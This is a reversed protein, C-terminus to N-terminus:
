WRYAVKGYVYAGNVGWPTSEYYPFVGNNDQSPIARDPYTNLANDAGLTFTWKALNYSASLDVIWKADLYQDFEDTLGSNFAKYGGYRTATGSFVWQGVQYLETWILKTTHTHWGIVNFRGGQQFLDLQDLLPPNPLIKSLRNKNYNASLTTQLTGANGLDSLYSAVVDLGQTVGSGANIFYQLSVVSFDTIGNSALYARVAPSSTPMRQSLQIQNNLVIQYADVSVNLAQNPSWVAGFTYNRSKEPQLPESGLARALAAGVPVIGTAYLGPPLHSSNGASFYGTATTSYREQALAPAHFATGVTGRLAFADTFDFRGSLAGSTTGGFDSYNEHRGALSVGLRDTLNTELDLYEATNHRSISGANQASWGSFGQAAGAPVVTTGPIPNTSTYSAAPEGAGIAYSQRLYQGGFAVTVSNPLWGLSVDKAIDIDFSRQKAKLLGDQFTTPSAGFDNLLALNVSHITKYSNRNAGYNGSVDWRWGGVTGRLGLVLAQDTMTPAILPLYGEPYLTAILPSSPHPTNSGYRFYNNSLATRHSFHGFAYFQVDSTIDYQSNLMLNQDRIEPDGYIFKQGLQTFGPRRDVGARNTMNQHGSQATLRLWGKDDGLPVGFNTSAQWARGDGASYQGGTVQVDGGEAGKKLIVNVVGAVADSGYQASAGDRLVEIHDIASMPITNLDVAQSGAGVYFLNLVASPHWRKGNVLVLVEGPSMGRLEFPRVTDTLDAGSPRPYNLSPIIRALATPAETTGTLQLVKNSVVDIPTLSSSETRDSARTGTVIVTGLNRTKVQPTATSTTAGTTDQSDADQASAPSALALFIAASLVAFNFGSTRNNM